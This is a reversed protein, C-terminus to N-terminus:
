TGWCRVLSQRSLGNWLLDYTPERYDIGHVEGGLAQVLKATAAGMGSFCGVVLARKGDYGILRDVSKAEDATM